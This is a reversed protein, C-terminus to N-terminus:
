GCHPIIRKNHHRIRHLLFGVHRTLGKLFAVTCAVSFGMLVFGVRFPSRWLGLRMTRTGSRIAAVSSAHPASRSIDSASITLVAHRAYMSAAFRHGGWLPLRFDQLDFGGDSGAVPVGAGLAAHGGDFVPLSEAPCEVNM